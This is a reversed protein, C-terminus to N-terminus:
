SAAITVIALYDARLRLSPLGIILGAVITILIALPVAIWFSLGVQVVLIVAAYAGLAQFGAQGFNLIGTYGVNLQLGLTFIGYIGALVFVGIWFSWQTLFDTSIALLASDALAEM